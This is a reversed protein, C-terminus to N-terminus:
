YIRSMRLTVVWIDVEKFGETVRKGMGLLNDTQNGM